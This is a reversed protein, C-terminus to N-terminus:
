CDLGTSNLLSINAAARSEAARISICKNAATELKPPQMRRGAPQFLGLREEFCFEFPEFRRRRRRAGGRERVGIVRRPAGLQYFGRLQKARRQVRQRVCAAVAHSRSFHRPACGAHDALEGCPEAGASALM